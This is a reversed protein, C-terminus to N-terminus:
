FIEKSELKGPEENILKLRVWVEKTEKGNFIKDNKYSLLLYNNDIISFKMESNTNNIKPFSFHRTITETLTSDSTIKYTGYQIVGPIGKQTTPFTYFTGDPNIVKYNGTYIIKTEGNVGKTPIVHRWLGVIDKSEVLHKKEQAFSLLSVFILLFALNNKITSM